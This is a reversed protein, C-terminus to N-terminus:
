KNRNLIFDTVFQNFKDAKEIFFLHGGNEIIKLTSNPITEALNKSNQMPVVGDKDGTLILTKAEIKSIRSEADFITASQLQQFYVIEPVINQERLHCVKDVEAANNKVFESTFAPIMYKRVRDLSNLNETSAFAMLVEISPSIHNKGGFSTCALVLKNLREPYKLAFEQAVFGGFSAGLINAKEIKLEDLLNAIDDSISQISVTLDRNISSKSIGRPDFTIVQFHKSLEDIQKFWIWAGSAFGAILFLPEGEEDGHLEYFLEFNHLNAFPM